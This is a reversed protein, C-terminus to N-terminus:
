KQINLESVNNAESYKNYIVPANHPCKSVPCKKGPANQYPANKEQPMKIRPM